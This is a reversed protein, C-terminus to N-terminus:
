VARLKARSGARLKAVRGNGVVANGSGQPAPVIGLAKCYNLYTSMAQATHVETLDLQDALSEAAHIVAAHKDEDLLDLQIAAEISTDLSTRFGM